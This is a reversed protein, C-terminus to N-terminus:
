KVQLHQQNRRLKSVVNQEIELQQNVKNLNNKRVAQDEVIFKTYISLTIAPNKHGMMRSIYALDVGAKLMRSAYSHRMQYLPRVKINNSKLRRKFNLNIVDHNYFRRNRSNTFVYEGDGTLKHQSKLAKYAGDLMDITRVSSKTKPLGLKGNVITKNVNITLNEFNIDRWLLAIAEGPRMGSFSFLAILNNMYSDDNSSILTDIEQQTFPNLEEDQGIERFNNNVKPAKVSDLPNKSILNNAIARTLIGYMISRMKQVSLPKLKKLLENQWMELELATLSSLKRGKFFSILHNTYHRKTRKFVHDRLTTQLLEFHKKAFVEFVDDDLTQQNTHAISSVLEQAIQPLVEKKVLLLNNKSAELGTSRSIRKSKSSFAIHWRGYKEKITFKIGLITLYTNASKKM